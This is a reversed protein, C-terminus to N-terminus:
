FIFHNLFFFFNFNSKKKKFPRRFQYEEIIKKSFFRNIQYEEIIKKFFNQQNNVRFISKSIVIKASKSLGYNMTPNNLFFDKLMNIRPCFDQMKPGMM